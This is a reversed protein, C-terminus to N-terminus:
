LTTSGDMGLVRLQSSKRLNKLSLIVVMLSLIFSLSGEDQGSSFGATSDNDGDSTKSLNIVTSSSSKNDIM